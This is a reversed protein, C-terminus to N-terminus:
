AGANVSRVLEALIEAVEHELRVMSEPKLRYARLDQVSVPEVGSLMALSSVYVDIPKDVMPRKSSSITDVGLTVDRLGMWGARGPPFVWGISLPESMDTTPIRISAGVNGWPISLGLGRCLEFLQRLSERYLEDGVQDLFQFEDTYGVRTSRPRQTPRARTRSEFATFDSGAFPILEVAFFNAASGLANLYEVTKTVTDTFASAVLVYNFSGQALQQALHDRYIASDQESQEPWMSRVSQELSSKGTVRPDECSPSRFYRVAVTREFEDYSMGWLDSGYHLLQALSHRFDSNQPGTKFEIILLDGGATTCVLDVAGSALTTERGVVMLPGSLGFEEVPLLDPNEKVLSRLEEENVVSAQELLHSGNDGTRVIM